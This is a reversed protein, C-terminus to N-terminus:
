MGKLGNFPEAEIRLVPVDPLKSRLQELALKEQQNLCADGSHKDVKYFIGTIEVKGAETEGALVVENMGIHELLEDVTMDLSRNRRLEKIEERSGIFTGADEPNVSLINELPFKLVVGTRGFTDTHNQTVVSTSITPRTAIQEPNAILDVYNGMNGTKGNRIAHERLDQGSGPNYAWVDYCFNDPDHKNPDTFSNQWSSRIEEQSAHRLPQGLSQEHQRIASIM